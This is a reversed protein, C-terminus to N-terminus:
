RCREFGESHPAGSTDACLRWSVPFAGELHRTRGSAGVLCARRDLQCLVWPRRWSHASTGFALDVRGAKACLRRAGSPSRRKHKRACRPRVHALRFRPGSGGMPGPHSQPHSAPEARIRHCAGAGGAAQSRDVWSARLAAMERKVTRTDVAWLRAIERQGVALHNRAWNYRATMLTLFRLVRRQMHKDQALAYAGLATLIDYKRAGAGRGVPRAVEIM